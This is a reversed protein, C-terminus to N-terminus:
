KRRRRCSGARLYVRVVGIALRRAREPRPEDLLESSLEEDDNSEPADVEVLTSIPADSYMVDGHSRPGSTESRAIGVKDIVMESDDRSQSESATV